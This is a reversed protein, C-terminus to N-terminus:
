EGLARGLARNWSTEADMANRLASIRQSEESIRLSAIQEWNAYILLGSRYEIDAEDNRQRDAALLSEHVQVQDVADAYSAWASELDTLGSVRASELQSESADLARKAAKTGYWTSTPGAGFLPYSLTLGASWGYNTSPFERRGAVTRSYDGTLSPWLSSEARSVSVAAQRVSAQAILVEPRLALLSRLDEPRAPPAAAGFTGSAAFNEYDERGLRQGLERQAARLDREASVISLRAQLAQADALLKDGKAETGSNYRLGIMGAARERLDSVLKAVKLSEQAFLLHIFASRLSQRLDASSKRLNAESLSVSASAARISAISAADFLNMSASAQASWRNAPMPRGENLSNSLNVQPMVDNFSQYFSSRSSELSFRSSALDPNASSALTECREWTLAEPEAGAPRSAAALVLAALTM